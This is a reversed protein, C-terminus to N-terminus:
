RLEDRTLHPREGIPPAKRVPGGGCPVTAGELIGRGSEPFGAPARRPGPGEVPRGLAGSLFHKLSEVSAASEALSYRGSIEAAFAGAAEQRAANV